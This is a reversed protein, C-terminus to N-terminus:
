KIKYLCQLDFLWVVADLFSNCIRYHPSAAECFQRFLLRGIPQQDVIYNYQVDTL